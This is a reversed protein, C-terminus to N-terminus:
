YKRYLVDYNNSHNLLWKSSSEIFILYKFNNHSEWNFFEMVRNCLATKDSTDMTRNKTPGIPLCIEDGSCPREACRGKVDKNTEFTMVWGEGLPIDPFFYM